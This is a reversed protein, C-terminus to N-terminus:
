SVTYEALDVSCHLNGLMGDSKRGYVLTKVAFEHRNDFHVDSTHIKCPRKELEVKKYKYLGEFYSPVNYLFEVTEAKQHCSIVRCKQYAFVEDIQDEQPPIEQQHLYEMIMTKMEAYFQDKNESIILYAVEEVPWYISSGEFTVDRPQKLLIGDITKRFMDFIEKSIVGDDHEIFYEIFKTSKLKHNFQLYLLPFIGARLSYLVQFFLSFLLSRKWDEVNMTDTAVVVEDIEEVDDKGHIKYHQETLPIFRTEIGHRERYEPLDMTTNTLISCLYIFIQANVSQQLLQEVGDVFTEYTEGPMALILESYIKMDAEAARKALANFVSLKINGRDVNILTVENNSQRALTLAKEMGADHFTKAVDFVRDAANKAYCVRFKEPAEYKEKTKVFYEAIEKDRKFSGFNADACFIYRIDQVGCWDALEKIKDMGFFRYKKGMKMTGEGWFCFSCKFPCGRNTEVIAQFKYESDMLYDFVGSIYPIPYCDLDKVFPPEGPNRIIEDKHRWSISPIESFDSTEIYRQLIDVFTQEGEGNVAMDIFPYQELFKPDPPVDVGGFIILCEPFEKKIKEAVALNMRTNWMSCSFAAIDPNEYTEIKSLPVKVFRFPMFEYNERIDKHTLAYAQLCGTSVPLWSTKELAINYEHTYIRM